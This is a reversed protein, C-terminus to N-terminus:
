TPGFAGAVEHLHDVVADLVAVHLQDGLGVVEQAVPEPEARGLEGVDEGVPVRPSSCDNRISIVALIKLTLSSWPPRLGSTSLMRSAAPWFPVPLHVVCAASSSPTAMGVIAAATSARMM